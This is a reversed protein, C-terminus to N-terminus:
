VDEFEIKKVDGSKPVGHDQVYGKRFVQHWSSVQIPLNTPVKMKKQINTNVHNFKNNKNLLINKHKRTYRHPCFIKSIERMGILFSICRYLRIMEMDLTM